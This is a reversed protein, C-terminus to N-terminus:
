VDSLTREAYLPTRLVSRARPLHAAVASVATQMFTHFRTKTNQKNQVFLTIETVCRGPSLVPPGDDPVM